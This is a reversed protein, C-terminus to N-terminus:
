FKVAHLTVKYVHKPTRIVDVGTGSFNAQANREVIAEIRAQAKEWWRADEKGELASQGRGRRGNESRKQSTVHNRRDRMVHVKPAKVKKANVVEWNGHMHEGIYIGRAGARRTILGENELKDLHYWVTSPHKIGSATCLERISMRPDKELLALLEYRRNSFTRAM